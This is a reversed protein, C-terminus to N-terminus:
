LRDLTLFEDLFFSEDFMTRLRKKVVGQEELPNGNGDVVEKIKLKEVNGEIIREFTIEVGSLHEKPITIVYTPYVEMKEDGTQRRGIFVRDGAFFNTEKNQDTKPTFIADENLFHPHSKKV